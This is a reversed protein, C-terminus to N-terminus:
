LDLGRFLSCIQQKKCVKPFLTSVLVTRCTQWKPRHSDRLRQEASKMTAISASSPLRSPESWLSSTCRISRRFIRREWSYRSGPIKERKRLFKLRRWGIMSKLIKLPTTPAQKLTTSRLHSVQHCLSSLPERASKPYHITVSTTSLSPNSTFAPISVYSNKRSLLILAVRSFVAM